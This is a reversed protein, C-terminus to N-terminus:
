RERYGRPRRELWSFGFERLFKALNKPDGDSTMFFGDQWDKLSKMREIVEAETPPHGLETSTEMLAIVAARERRNQAPSVTPIDGKKISRVSQETAKERPSTERCQKLVAKLKAKAQSDNPNNRCFVALSEASRKRMSKEWRGATEPTRAPVIERCPFLFGAFVGDHFWLAGQEYPCTPDGIIEFGKGTFDLPPKTAPLDYELPGNREDMNDRKMTGPNGTRPLNEKGAPRSKQTASSTGANKMRAIHMWRCSSALASESPFIPRLHYGRTLFCNSNPLPLFLPPTWAILM